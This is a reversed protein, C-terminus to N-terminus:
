TNAAKYRIIVTELRSLHLFEYYNAASFRKSALLVLYKIAVKLFLVNSDFLLSAHGLIKSRM